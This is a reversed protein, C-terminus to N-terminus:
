RPFVIGSAMRFTLPTDARILAPQRGQMEGEHIYSLTRVEVFNGSSAKIKHIRLDLEHKKRLRTGDSVLTFRGVAEAGAPAVVVGDVKIDELLKAQWEAGTEATRSSLARVPAIKIEIGSPIRIGNAAAADQASSGIGTPPTPMPTSGPSMPREAMAKAEKEMAAQESKLSDRDTSCGSAALLAIVAPAIRWLRVCLTRNEM